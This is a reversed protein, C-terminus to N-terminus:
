GVIGVFVFGYPTGKEKEKVRLTIRKGVEPLGSTGKEKEKARRM